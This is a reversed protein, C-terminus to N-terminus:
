TDPDPQQRGHHVPPGLEGRSSGTLFVLERRSPIPRRPTEGRSTSVATASPMRTTSAATSRSSPFTRARPPPSCSTRPWPWTTTAPTSRSSPPLPWWTAPPAPSTTSVTCPPSASPPHRSRQLAVARRGPRVARGPERRRRRGPALLAPQLHHLPAALAPRLAHHPQVMDVHDALDDPLSYALTRLLPAGSAGFQYWGFEADLLENARGVSTRITIWDNDVDPWVGHERLWASVEAVAADSPAALSRVQERAIPPPRLKLPGADVRRAHSAGAGARGAPPAGDEARAPDSPVAARVLRWGEPVAPVSDMVRATAAAALLVLALMSSSSSSSSSSSPDPTSVPTYVPGDLPTGVLVDWAAVDYGAAASVGGEYVQFALQQDGAPLKRRLILRGAHRAAEASGWGEGRRECYRLSSVSVRLASIQRRCGGPALSSSSGATQMPFLSGPCSSGLRSFAAPM